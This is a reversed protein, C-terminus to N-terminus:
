HSDSSMDFIISSFLHDHLRKSIIEQLRNAGREVLQELPPLCTIAILPLFKWSLRMHAQFSVSNFSSAGIAKLLYPHSNLL